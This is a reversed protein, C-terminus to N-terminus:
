VAPSAPKNELNHIHLKYFRSFLLLSAVLSIIEALPFAYWVYRLGIKSFLYAAPLIIVLQRLVSIFLSNKGRGVAQFITSFIVGFAAPIFCLSISRFAPVGIALMEGSGDFITLLQAPFIWFLLTGVAMIGCAICLGIRLCSLLRAKKRAGYNYGMIPMLGHTLGFVPMFVFSQLKYYVGLVSIATESFASLIQNLGMVLFSSISQMIMSPIGVSYIDRITTGHFRFGKFTVHVAHSKRFMVYLSYCMALIQGTVTAVAAGLIGMKPLGFLGFILIPDLIINTVCGVLMFLMPYIMNGTAQLTKEFAIEVFSGFSCICVVSLYQTGLDIVNANQTFLGLFWRSGFLGFLAFLLSTFFALIAGHCAALDAERQRKEGLRRSVLSNIGVGTGVAMAIMLQQIPFALSVATLADMSIKSVFYSDVINYLSQVLMSFIAPLSMSIILRLMPTSGMKNERIEEM